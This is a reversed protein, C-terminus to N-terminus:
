ASNLKETVAKSHAWPILVWFLIRRKPPASVQSRCGLRGLSGQPPGASVAPALRRRCCSTYAAARLCCLPETPRSAHSRDRAEHVARYESRRGWRRSAASLAATPRRCPPLLWPEAAVGHRQAAASRCRAPPLGPCPGATYASRQSILRLKRLSM